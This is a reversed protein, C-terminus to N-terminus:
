VSSEIHTDVDTRFNKSLCKESKRIGWWDRVHSGDSRRMRCDHGRNNGSENASRWRQVAHRFIKASTIIAWCHAPAAALERPIAFTSALRLWRLQLLVLVLVLVLVLLPQLLTATYITLNLGATVDAYSECASLRSRPVVAVSYPWM